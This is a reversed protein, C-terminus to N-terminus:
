RKLIIVYVFVPIIRILMGSAADRDNNSCEHVFIYAVVGSARVGGGGGDIFFAGFSRFITCVILVEKSLAFEVFATETGNREENCMCM